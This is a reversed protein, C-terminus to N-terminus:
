LQVGGVSMVAEWNTMAAAAAMFFSSNMPLRLFLDIGVRCHTERRLETM